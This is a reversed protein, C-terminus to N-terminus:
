PCVVRFFCCLTTTYPSIAGTVTSWPGTITPASQLRGPGTWTIIVTSGSVMISVVAPPLCPDKCKGASGASFIGLIDDPTLARKFFEVEDICGLWPSAGSVPTTGVLFPVTNDLSYGQYTTPDFTGTPQGDIYFQGGITSGRDVTVAVFHWQNDAPVAGGTDRFNTFSVPPTAMQFLLNGSSIALSYGVILSFNATPTRKDVIIRPPSNGSAPDRKVWADITFNGIGPEIGAYTPVSVSQNVGDLCLSRAVYGNNVAPGNVHTGNNGALVLNASIIGSPEDLPLWLGLDPPNTFCCPASIFVAEGVNMIPTGIDWAGSTFTYTFYASGNWRQLKTGAQPSLGTINEYTGLCDVQRSLLEFSGCPCSFSVPLDPCRPTGTFTLNPFGSWTAAVPINIFAGEGPNLTPPVVDNGNCDTWGTGSISDKEYCVFGSCPVWTYIQVGDPLISFLVDLGNNISNDLQNAILNFGPTLTITYSTPPSVTITQTCTVNKNCDATVKYARTITHVTACGGPTITDGLHTVAMIGCAGSITGGQLVFDAATAAAAPVSGSCGVTVPTPCTVVLPMTDQVTITQVFDPSSTNGCDDSFNWKRVRVYKEACLPDPTTVDSVLHITPNLTCNDTAAPMAVLAAAIGGPNSCELTVNLSGSATTVVPATQDDVTIMQDCTVFNGCGDSVKYSRTIKYRDHCTQGSIVENILQVTVPGGCAESIMGGQAAFDTDNAAAVPVLNACSVTVAPPCTVAPPTQDNVTIAQTCTASNGCMDTAKYTRTIAYRDACPKPEAFYFVVDDSPGLQGTVVIKCATPPIHDWFAADCDTGSSKFQLTSLKGTVPNLKMHYWGINGSLADDDPGLSSFSTSFPPALLVSNCDFVEIKYLDPVQTINWIGFMTGLTLAYNQLDFTVTYNGNLDVEAKYGQVTGSPGFLNPFQSLHVTNNGVLFPGGATQATIFGLGSPSTFTGSVSNVTVTLFEYAPTLVDSLHMVTVAGGCADSTTGGALVFSAYDTAAAPVLSACGVTVPGPCTVTPPTTDAVTITQDSTSTNGCGDIATWTRTRTYTGPCPGSTDHDSYNLSAVGSCADTATPTAFVPVAPCEITTPAPLASILPAITDVYDITQIAVTSVGCATATWTRTMRKALTCNANLSITSDVFTLTVTAGCPDTATPTTFAPVPNPCEIIIPGPLGSIVPGTGVTVTQSCTIVDGCGNQAIWTRTVTYSQVCAGPVTVDPGQQTVTFNNGCCNPTPPDFSLISGCPVSKNAACNFPNRCGQTDIFDPCTVPGGCFNIGHASFTVPNDGAPCTGQLTFQLTVSAPTIPMKYNHNFYVQQGLNFPSGGVLSGTVPLTVNDAVVYTPSGLIVLGPHLTVDLELNEVEAIGTSTIVMSYGYIDCPDQSTIPTPNVVMAITSPDVVVDLNYTKVLCSPAVGPPYGLCDVGYEFTVHYPVGPTCPSFSVDLQLDVAQLTGALLQGVQWYGTGNDSIPLTNAYVNNVTVGSGPVVRFWAYPFMSNGWSLLALKLGTIMPPSSNVHFVPTAASLDIDIPPAQPYLPDPNEPYPHVSQGVPNGLSDISYRRDTFPFSVQVAPIVNAPTPPCKPLLLGRLAMRIPLGDLAFLPWPTHTTVGDDYDDFTITGSGSPPTTSVPFGIPSNFGPRDFVTFEAGGFEVGAPLTMSPAPITNPLPLTGAGGWEVYPRFEGSGPFQFENIGPLAAEVDTELLFRTECPGTAFSWGLSQDAFDAPLIEFRTSTRPNLVLLNDHWIDCSDTSGSKFQGGLETLDYFGPALTLMPKVQLTMTFKLTVASNLPDQIAALFTADTLDVDLLCSQAATSFGPGPAVPFTATHTVTLNDTYTYDMQGSVFGLFQYAEGTTYTIEFRLDNGARPVILGTAVVAISDFAYCRNTVLGAVPTTILTQLTQDTFGYSSRAVSFSHTEQPANPSTHPPCPGCGHWYLTTDFCAVTYDCTPSCSGCVVEIKANFTHFGGAGPPCTSLVVDASLRGKPDLGTFVFINNGNGDPTFAPSLFLVPSATSNPDPFYTVSNVTYVDPITLTAKYTLGGACDLTFYGSLTGGFVFPSVFPSPAVSIYNFDVTASDGLQVDTGGGPGNAEAFATMSANNHYDGFEVDEHFGAPAVSDCMNDYFFKFRGNGDQGFIMYNVAPKGCDAFALTNYFLSACNFKAGTIKLFLDRGERFENYLPTPEPIFLSDLPSAGPFPQSMLSDFNLEIRKSGSNYNYFLGGGLTTVDIWNIGDGLYTPGVTPFFATTDFPIDFKHVTKTDSGIAKNWDAGANHFSFVIESAVSGCLDLPPTIALGPTIGGLSTGVYIPRTETVMSCPNNNQIPCPWTLTYKIQGPTALSTSCHDTDFFETFRVGDISGPNNAMYGGSGPFLTAILTADVHLTFNHSTNPFSQPSGVLSNNHVGQISFGVPTIEPAATADYDFTFDNLVGYSMVVEFQREGTTPNSKAFLRREPVNAYLTAGQDDIFNIFNLKPIRVEFHLTSPVFTISGSVLQHTIDLFQGTSTVNPSVNCPILLTATVTYSYGGSSAPISYGIENYNGNNNINPTVTLGNASIIALTCGGPLLQQFSAAGSGTSPGTITTTLTVLDKCIEMPNSTATVSTAVQIQGHLAPAAALFLAFLAWAVAHILTTPKLFNLDNSHLPKMFRERAFTVQRATPAALVFHTVPNVNTLSKAKFVQTKM